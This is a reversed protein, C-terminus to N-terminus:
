AQFELLIHEKPKKVTKLIVGLVERAHLDSNSAGTRMASPCIVFRLILRGGVKGFPRGPRDTVWGTLDTHAAGTSGMHKVLDAHVTRAM